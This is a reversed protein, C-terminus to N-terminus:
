RKRALRFGLNFFRYDPTDRYRDACRVLAPGNDWSGGRNVRYSGSSAYIPNNRSHKSYADSAYIDECWEWVNGLMDYLGFDNARFRGVPAAVAYGDNCSHNPWTFNKLASKSTTDHVNAYRCANDSNDGWYRISTSGGRCAYEWEAETPLSFKGNSKRNLWDVFAKADEWSVMVVPQDEGNLSHGEYAGSDHSSRFKRFQANTVEYKGMWFGDVCVEHVPKEDSAGNNSGMQFCGKPVWVFEMGTVPETYTTSREQKKKEEEKKEEALRAAVKERERAIREREAALQQREMESKLRALEAKEQELREREERLKRAEGDISSDPSVTNQTFYFPKGIWSTSMTPLQKGGTASYVAIRTNDFIEGIKLSPTKMNLLLHETFVSNRGEGDDATRNPSTAYAIISGTPANIRALGKKRGGKTDSVFPNDRCADLIVISASVGADRMKGMIWGVNVAHYEVDSHSTLSKNNVPILYNEGNIQMGHGSYYFLGVDTGYLKKFFQEVSEKMKRRDANTATIVDFACEKLVKSIDRADNVPNKLGDIQYAANGIVLATRKEAAAGISLSCFLLTM